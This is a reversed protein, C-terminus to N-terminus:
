RVVVTMSRSYNGPRNSAKWGQIVPGREEGLGQRFGDMDRPHTLAEEPFGRGERDWEGRGQPHRSSGKEEAFEVRYSSNHLALEAASRL